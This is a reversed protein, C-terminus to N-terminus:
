SWFGGFSSGRFAVTVKMDLNSPLSPVSPQWLGTGTYQSPQFGVGETRQLSVRLVVKRSLTARVKLAALARTIM